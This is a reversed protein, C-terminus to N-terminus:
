TRTALHSWGTVGDLILLPWKRELYDLGGSDLSWRVCNIQSWDATPPMSDDSSCCNDRFGVSKYGAKQSAVDHLKGGRCRLNILAGTTAWTGEHGACPRRPWCSNWIPLLFKPGCCARLVRLVGLV